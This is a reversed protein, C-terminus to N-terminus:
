EELDKKVREVTEFVDGHGRGKPAYAYGGTMVPVIQGVYKDDLYVRNKRYTIM